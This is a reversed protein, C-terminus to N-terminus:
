NKLENNETYCRLQQLARRQRQTSTSYFDERQTFNTDSFTREYIFVQLTASRYIILLNATRALQM